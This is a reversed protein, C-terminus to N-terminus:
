SLGVSLDDLTPLLTEGLGGNEEVRRGNAFLHHDQSLLHQQSRMRRSPAVARGLPRAAGPVGHSLPTRRGCV